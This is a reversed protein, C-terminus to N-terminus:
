VVMARQKDLVRKMDIVSFHKCEKASRVFIVDKCHGIIFDQKDSQAEDLTMLHDGKVEIFADFDPLYFDPEYDFWEGFSDQWPIRHHGRTWNVGLEDLRRAMLLEWGSDMWHGAYICTHCGYPKLGRKRRTKAIQKARWRYAKPTTACKKSCYRGTQKYAMALPFDFNEKCEPCRRTEHALDYKCQDSCTKPYPTKLQNPTTKEPVDFPWQCSQCTLTMVGRVPISRKDPDQWQYKASCSRSCTKQPNSPVAWFTNPCVPCQREEPKGRKGRPLAKACDPSCVKQDYYKNPYYFKECMPCQKQTDALHEKPTTETPM